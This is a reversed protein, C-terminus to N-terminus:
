VRKVYPHQFVDSADDSPSSFESIVAGAEGAQFWHYTDPEITFQEGPLLVIEKAATYYQKNKQPLAAHILTEDLGNAGEVYLYVKGQRCRFTERKGPTGNVPPHKHEPCTQYPLLVLEKACYRENNVYVLLNLGEEEINNLGFDAYEIAALEEERFTM